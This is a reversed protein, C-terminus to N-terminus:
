VYCLGTAMYVCRQDDWQTTKMHRTEDGENTRDMSASPRRDEYDYYVIALNNGTVHKRTRRKWKKKMGHELQHQVIWMCIYVSM